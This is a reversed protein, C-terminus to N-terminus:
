ADQTSFGPNEKEKKRCRHSLRPEKLKPYKAHRRKIARPENRGPRNRVLHSAASHIMWAVDVITEREDQFALWADRASSFSVERPHVELVEASDCMLVRVLNYGLVAVAIERDLNGPTLCRLECMGMSSKYSRIDVEVDWRFGYLEAIDEATFRQRDTLTTVITIPAECGAVRYRVMRYLIRKPLATWEKLTFRSPNFAPKRLEVIQDEITECTGEFPSNRSGNICCVMNVGRRILLAADHFSELNSDTLVIDGKEFERHKERFLSVEGTRKGEVPATSYHEVCGSALSTTVVVRVQPFGLGEKQSSPQPYKKQNALTDPARLVFGDVLYVNLGKWKWEDPTMSHAFKRIRDSLYDILAVPVRARAKSYASADECVPPLGRNMRERNFKAMVTICADGRSLVQSVFLGLTIAPTFVRDRFEVNLTDCLHHIEEDDFLHHLRINDLAKLNELRMLIDDFSLRRKRQRERKQGEERTEVSAKRPPLIM